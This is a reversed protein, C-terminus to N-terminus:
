LRVVRHPLLLESVFDPIRPMDKHAIPERNEYWHAVLLLLAHRIPQPVLSPTTGFGASFAIEIGLAKAGPDPLNTSTPLLRAPMANGDLVYRGSEIVEPSGDAAFIKVSDIAQVPSMPLIVPGPSPWADFTWIWSQTILALGLAQEIQLRSTTILSSVFADEATGDIRCHAKAEALTVPEVAAAATLVLSM